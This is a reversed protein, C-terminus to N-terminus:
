IYAYMLIEYFFIFYIVSEYANTKPIVEISSPVTSPVFKANLEVLILRIDNALSGATM